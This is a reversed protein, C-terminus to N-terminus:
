KSIVLDMALKMEEGFLDVGCFIFLLKKESAFMELSLWFCCLCLDYFTHM